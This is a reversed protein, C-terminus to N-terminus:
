DIIRIKADKIYKIAEIIVIDQCNKYKKLLFERRRKIIETDIPYRYNVFVTNMNKIWLRFAELAKEDDKIKNVLNLGDLTFLDYYFGSLEIFNDNKGTYIKMKEVYGDPKLYLRGKIDVRYKKIFIVEDPYQSILDDRRELTKYFFNIKQDSLLYPLEYNYISFYNQIKYIWRKRISMDEHLLKLLEDLNFSLELFSMTLLNEKIDQIIEESISTNSPYIDEDVLNSRGEKFSILFILATIICILVFIKKYDKIGM